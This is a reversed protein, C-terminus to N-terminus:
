AKKGRGRRSSTAPKDKVEAETTAVESSKVGAKTVVGCSKLEIELAKKSM